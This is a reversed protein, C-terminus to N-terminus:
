DAVGVVADVGPLRGVANDVTSLDTTSRLTVVFSEPLSEPKTAGVLDPADCFAAKFREYAHQHDEYTYGVVGPLGDLASAVAARQAPTSDTTLFVRVTRSGAVPSEAPRSAGPSCEGTAPSRSSSASASGSAPGGVPLGAGHSGGAYLPPLAVAGTVAAGVALAAVVGAVQRRRRADGRARVAAATALQLGAVDRELDILAERIRPSMSM